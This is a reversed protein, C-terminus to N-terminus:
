LKGDERWIEEKGCVWHEGVWESIVSTMTKGGLAEETQAVEYKKGLYRLALLAWDQIFENYVLDVTEPLSDESAPDFKVAASICNPVDYFRISAHVTDDGDRGADDSTTYGPIKPKFSDSLPVQANTADIAGIPRLEANRPLPARLSVLKHAETDFDQLIPGESNLVQLVQAAVKYPVNVIKRFGSTFPSVLYTTDTTFPGKFIDFRMAGSNTIIISPDTANSFTDPIVED